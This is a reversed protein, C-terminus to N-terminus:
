GPLNEKAKQEMQVQQAEESVAFGVELTEINLAKLKSQLISSAVLAEIDVLTLGDESDEQSLIEVNKIFYDSHRLLEDKITQRNRLVVDPPVHKGIAKEIANRIANNKAKGATTGVGSATVKQTNEQQPKPAVVEAQPLSIRDMDHWLRVLDARIQASTKAYDGTRLEAQAEIKKGELTLSIVQAACKHFKTHCGKLHIFSQSEGYNVVGSAYIWKGLECLDDRAVKDPDLMEATDCDIMSQLRVKWKTHAEIANVFDLGGIERKDPVVQDLFARDENGTFLHRIWNIM